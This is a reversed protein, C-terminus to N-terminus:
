IDGGAALATEGGIPLSHLAFENPNRRSKAVVKEVVPLVRGYRVVRASSDRGFSALPAHDPLGLFCSMLVLRLAVARGDGRDSWRSRRVEHRTRVHVELRNRTATTGRLSVEM